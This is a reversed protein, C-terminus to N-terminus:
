EFVKGKPYKEENCLAFNEENYEGKRATLKNVSHPVSYENHM